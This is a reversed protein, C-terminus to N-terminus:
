AYNDAEKLLIGFSIEYLFTELYICTYVSNLTHNLQVHVRRKTLTALELISDTYLRYM